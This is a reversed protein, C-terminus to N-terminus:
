EIVENARLHISPPVQLGLAKATTLNIAMEFTTPQQVPLDAPKAGKFIKGVYIGAQRYAGTFSASYSLLGGDVVYERLDYIAPIAHRAALAIITRRQSTFFPSGSLMFAKAGSKLFTAFAAELERESTARAVM